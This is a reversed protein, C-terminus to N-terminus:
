NMFNEWQVPTYNNVFPKWKAQFELFCWLVDIHIELFNYQTGDQNVKICLLKIENLEAVTPNYLIAGITHSLKWSDTNVFGSSRTVGSVFEFGEIETNIKM